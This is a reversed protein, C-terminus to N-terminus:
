KTTIVKMISGTLDATIAATVEEASSYPISSLIDTGNTDDKKNKIRLYFDTQVSNAHGKV